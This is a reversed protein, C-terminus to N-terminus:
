GGTGSYATSSDARGVKAVAATMSNLGNGTYGPVSGGRGGLLSTQRALEANIQSLIGLSQTGGIAIQSLLGVSSPDAMVSGRVVEGGPGVMNESPAPVAPSGGGAIATGAKQGGWSGILGGLVAGVAAGVPGAIAMGIAGGGWAGGAGGLGAGVVGAAPAGELYAAGAGGIGGLVPGAARAVGGLVRGAGGGLAGGVGAGIGLMRSAGYLLVLNGVFSAVGGVFSAVAASFMPIQKSIDEIRTSAKEVMDATRDAVIQTTANGGLGAAAGGAQGLLPNRPGMIGAVSPDFGFRGSYQRGIDVMQQRKQAETMSSLAVRYMEQVFPLFAGRSMSQAQAVEPNNAMLATTNGGSAALKKVWSSAFEGSPGFAKMQTLFNSLNAGQEKTLTGLAVQESIEQTNAKVLATLQDVTMNTAKAIDALFSVSKVQADVGAQSRMEQFPGMSKQRESIVDIIQQLQEPSGFGRPNVGRKQLDEITQRYMFSLKDITQGFMINPSTVGMGMSKQVTNKTDVLGYGIEERTGRMTDLIRKIDDFMYESGSLGGGRNALFGTYREVIQTKIFHGLREFIGILDTAKTAMGVLGLIADKQRSSYQQHLLGGERTFESVMGSLKQTTTKTTDDLLKDIATYRASTARLDFLTTGTGGHGAGHGSELAETMAGLESKIEELVTKISGMMGIEKAEAAAGPGGARGPTGGGPGGPIGGAAIAKRLEAFESTITKNIERLSTAITPESSGRIADRVESVLQSNNKGEGTNTLNDRIDSLLRSLAPDIAM